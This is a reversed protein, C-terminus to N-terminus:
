RTDAGAGRDTYFGARTHAGADTCCDACCDTCGDSGTNAEARGNGGATKNGSAGAYRSIGGSLNPGTYGTCRGQCAHGISRIINKGTCGDGKGVAVCVAKGSETNRGSEDAALGICRGFAVSRSRGSDRRYM